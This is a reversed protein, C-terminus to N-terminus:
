GWNKWWAWATKRWKWAIEFSKQQHKHARQANREAWYSARLWKGQPNGVTQITLDLLSTYNRRKLISSTNWLTKSTSRWKYTSCKRCCWIWIMFMWYLTGSLRARSGTTVSTMVPLAFTLRRAARNVVIHHYNSM